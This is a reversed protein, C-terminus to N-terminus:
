SKSCRLFVACSTVLPLADSERDRSRTQHESADMNREEVM